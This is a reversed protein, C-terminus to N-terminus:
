QHFRGRHYPPLFCGFSGFPLKKKEIFEQVPRTIDLIQERQGTHIKLTKMLDHYGELM